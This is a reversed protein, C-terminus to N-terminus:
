RVAILPARKQNNVHVAGHIRQVLGFLPEGGVGVQAVVIGCGIERAQQSCIRELIKTKTGERGTARQGTQVRTSVAFASHPLGRGTYIGDNSANLAKSVLQSIGLISNQIWEAKIRQASEWDVTVDAPARAGQIAAIRQCRLPLINGDAAKGQKKFL